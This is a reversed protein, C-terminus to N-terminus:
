VDALFDEFNIHTQLSDSMEDNVEEVEEDGMTNLDSLAISPLVGMSFNVTSPTYLRASSNISRTPIHGHPSPLVRLFLIITQLYKYLSLISPTSLFLHFFILVHNYFCCCYCCCICYYYCCCYYYYNFYDYKEEEMKGYIEGSGEHMVRSESTFLDDEVPEEIGNEIRKEKEEGTEEEQTNTEREEREKGKEEGGEEGLTDTDREEKEEKTGASEGGQEMETAVESVDDVQNKEKKKRRKLIILIIIVVVIVLMLGVM